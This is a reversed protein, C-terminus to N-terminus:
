NLGAQYSGNRGNPTDCWISFWRAQIRYPNFKVGNSNTFEAARVTITQESSVKDLRLSYLDEINDSLINLEVNTWEFSNNNVIIYQIGTYTIKANLRVTSGGPSLIEPILNQKEKFYFVIIVVLVIIGVFLLKLLLSRIKHLPKSLNQRHLQELKEEITERDLESGCFFCRKAESDIEQGCFPCREPGM